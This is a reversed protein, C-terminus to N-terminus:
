PTFEVTELHVGLLQVVRGDEDPLIFPVNGEELGQSVLTQHRLLVGDLELEEILDCTEQPTNPEFPVFEVGGPYKDEIQQKEEDSPLERRLVGIRVTSSM